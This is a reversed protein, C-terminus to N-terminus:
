TGAYWLKPRANGRCVTGPASGRLVHVAVARWPERMERTGSRGASGPMVGPQRTSVPRSGAGDAVRSSAPTVARIDHVGTRGPQLGPPVFDPSPSATRIGRQRAPAQAPRALSGTGASAPARPRSRGGRRRPHCRSCRRGRSPGAPIRTVKQRSQFTGSPMSGCTGQPLRSCEGVADVVAAPRLQEDVEVREASALGALGDPVQM